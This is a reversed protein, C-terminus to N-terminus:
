SIGPESTVQVQHQLTFVQDFLLTFIFTYVLFFLLLAAGMTFAEWLGVSYWLVYLPLCLFLLGGEFGIVHISRVALTRVKIQKRIEWFEFGTNFIYNWALATTSMLIALLLSEQADSDKLLMLVLTSLLIANIEYLIVYVLRRKIPTLTLLPFSWLANLARSYFLSGTRGGPPYISTSYSNEVAFSRNRSARSIYCSM